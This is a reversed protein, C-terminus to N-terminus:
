RIKDQEYYKKRLEKAKALLEHLEKKTFLKGVLEDQEHSSLFGDLKAKIVPSVQNIARYPGYPYYSSTFEPMEKFDPLSTLPNDGVLEPFLKAFARYERIYVHGGKIFSCLTAFERIQATEAELAESNLVNKRLTRVCDSEIVETTTRLEEIFNQIYKRSIISKPIYWAVANLKKLYHILNKRYYEDEKVENDTCIIFLFSDKYKNIDVDSRFVDKNNILNSGIIPDTNATRRRGARPMTPLYAVVDERFVFDCLNNLNNEKCYKIAKKLQILNEEYSSAPVKIVLHTQRSGIMHLYKNVSTNTINEPLFLVKGRRWKPDIFKIAEEYYRIRAYGSKKTTDADLGRYSPNMTELVSYIIDASYLGDLLKSYRPLNFGKEINNESLVDILKEIYTNPNRSHRVSFSWGNSGVVHKHHAMSLKNTGEGVLCIKDIDVGVIVDEETEIIQNLRLGNNFINESLEIYLEDVGKQVIGSNILNIKNKIAEYNEETDEIRDRSPALELEGINFKFVEIYDYVGSNFSLPPVEIQAESLRERLASPIEYIFPGVSVKNLAGGCHKMNYSPSLIALNDDEYYKEIETFYGVDFVAPKVPCLVFLNHAEKRLRDMVREDTVPVTVITGDPRGEDVPETTSFDPQSGNLYCMVSTTMGKHTTTVTFSDSLVLPTKGGLGYGGIENNNDRKTSNGFVTFVEYITEKSMGVGFDTIILEPNMGSPLIIEVPVDEKGAAKHADLANATIEQLVTREKNEYLKDYLMSFLMGDMNVGFSQTKFSSEVIDSKEEIIM